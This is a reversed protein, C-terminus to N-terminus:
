SNRALICKATELLCCGNKQIKGLDSALEMQTSEKRCYRYQPNFLRTFVKRGTVTNSKNLEPNINM